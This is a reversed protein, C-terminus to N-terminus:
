TLIMKVQGVGSSYVQFIFWGPHAEKHVCLQILCLPSKLLMRLVENGQFQVVQLICLPFAEVNVVDVLFHHSSIDCLSQVPEVVQEILVWISLMQHNIVEVQVMGGPPPTSISPSLSISCSSIM